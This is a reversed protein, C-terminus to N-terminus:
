KSKPQVSIPIVATQLGEQRVLNTRLWHQWDSRSMRAPGDPFEQMLPGKVKRESYLFWVWQRSVDEEDVAFLSLNYYHSMDTPDPIVMPKNGLVPMAASRERNPHIAYVSDTDPDELYSMMWGDAAAEFRLFLPDGTTFIRTSCVTAPCTGVGTRLPVESTTHSRAWGWVEVTYCPPEQGNDQRKVQPQERDSLWIGRVGSELHRRLRTTVTDRHHSVTLREELIEASLVGTGFAAGLANVRAEETLRELLEVQSLHERLCGSASGQVPVADQASAFCASLLSLLLLTRLTNIM